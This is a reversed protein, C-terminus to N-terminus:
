TARAHRRGPRLRARVAPALLKFFPNFRLAEWVYRDFRAPDPDGAAEIAQALVEPRLLLQEVAEVMAGPASEVFGLPLGAM